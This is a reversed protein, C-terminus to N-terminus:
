ESNTESCFESIFYMLLRGHLEQLKQVLRIKRKRRERYIHEMEEMLQKIYHVHSRELQELAQQKESSIKESKKKLLELEEEIKDDLAEKIRRKSRNESRKLIEEAMERRQDHEKRVSATSGLTSVPSAVMNSSIPSFPAFSPTGRHLPTQM